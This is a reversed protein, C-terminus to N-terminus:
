LHHTAAVDVVIRAARGVAGPEGLKSRMVAYKERMRQQSNPNLWLDLVAKAVNDATAEEQLLEPVIEEGMVINPLAFHRIKALRRVIHGTLKAVQYVAILPTDLIAAELTATGCAIVALDCAAMVNYTENAATKIKLDGVDVTELLQESVTHAMPVLFQVQPIAAAIQKAGELMVPLLSNLEQTRSGPLLGIIPMNPDLGVKQCLEEKSKTVQVIDLLPHGVFEADAGAATYLEHEFPFVSVVKSAFDAVKKARGKGWAWAAPSFYYVVPVKAKKAMKGFRLNFGPFDILVVVDPKREVMIRQLQDLVRKLVRYSQLAEVFGITSLKTPDFILEVGAQQMLRGGMGFIEANPCKERIEGVLNAGHLDGSAEGALIMFKYAQM